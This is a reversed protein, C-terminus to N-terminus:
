FPIRAAINSIGEGVKIGLKRMAGKPLIASPVSTKLVGPKLGLLAEFLARTTSILGTTPDSKGNASHGTTPLASSAAPGASSLHQQLNALAGQAAAAAAGLGAGTTGNAGNSPSSGSHGGNMADLFANITSIPVKGTVIMDIMQPPIHGSLALEVLQVPIRGSLSIRLLEPPIQGSLYANVVQRIVSQGTTLGTSPEVQQSVLPDVNMQTAQVQAQGKVQQLQQQAQAQAQSQHLAAKPHMGKSILAMLNPQLQQKLSSILGGGQAQTARPAHSEPAPSAQPQTIATAVPAPQQPQEQKTPKTPQRSASNRKLPETSTPPSSGVIGVPPEEAVNSAKGGMFGGLQSMLNSVLNPNQSAFNTTMSALSALDLPQGGTGTSPPSGPAQQEAHALMFLLRPYCQTFALALACKFVLLSLRQCIAKYDLRDISAYFERTAGAVPDCTAM